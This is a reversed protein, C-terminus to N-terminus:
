DRPAVTPNNGGAHHGCLLQGGQAGGVAINGKIIEGALQVGRVGRWILDHRQCHREGAAWPLGAGDNGCRRMRADRYDRAPGARPKGASRDALTKDHIKRAVVPANLIKVSIGAGDPHPRAHDKVLQILKQM